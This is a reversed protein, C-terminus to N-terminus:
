KEMETNFHNNKIYVHDFKCWDGKPPHAEMSKIKEHANENNFGTIKEARYESSNKKIKKYRGWRKNKGYQWKQIYKKIEM